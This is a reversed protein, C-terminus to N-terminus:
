RLRYDFQVFVERGIPSQGAWYNFYPWGTHTLDRIHTNNLVNNVLLTIRLDNTVRKGVNFNYTIYPQLRHGVEAHAPVNQPNWAWRQVSGYRLGFLTTTWDNYNWTIAGRVRSRHEDNGPDDRWNIRPTDYREQTESELIHSYALQTDFSGWRDTTLRYRFTADVGEVTRFARNTPGRTIQEVRGDQPTGPLSYRQVRGVMEQCFSSDMSFDAPSGDRKVGLRCNAEQELIYANTIDGVQNRLDISYYDLSVSMNDIIDWVFGATWSKGKEEELLPNGERVGFSQYVTPHGSVNCDSVTLGQSRCTYEDLLNSFAGSQEAFIYHMDPARFSTGYNARFLLRDVPRWELGAQWTAAGDVETIDDYKDYRGALTARLSQFVPISFELGVAYRDREGGGGTGTLNLPKDPANTPYTPLIRPDARLSYEQSGWELIGAFGFAGAPLDFLDGSITLNATTAQSTGQNVVRTSIADYESGTLPRHWNDFNLNFVPYANFFPDVAGEVPTLFLDHMARALIRPRDNKYKYRSQALTFDWDFRNQFATGRLGAAIETAREEFTNAVNRFGGYEEPRFIRQLQVITGLTPEYIFTGSHVNIGTGWWETGGSSYANSDWGFASAWAQLGNDFDYTGYLYGATNSSKNRITQLAADDDPGCILGRTPSQFTRYGFRDCVEAGPYYAAFNTPGVAGIADIAILALSPSPDTNYGAFVSGIFDRQFGYIPERELHELSYTVSWRDGSKGGVWQVHGSDGGGMTTTGATLRVADGEINERLVVNVVGAVADSGYIASAGGALIEIRDVMASPIAAVNVFNSQSNYPQPYEAMRRGNLLFLTYGPGIGRLNIVSANPTFGNQFMEGQVDTSNQTLTQLADFVTLHGEREMDASTIITIPAPGEVEARRIRSGTVQVRDLTTAEGTDRQTESQQQASDEPGDAEQGQAFAPSSIFLAAMLATSLTSPKPGTRRTTM